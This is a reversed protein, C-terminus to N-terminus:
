DIVNEVVSGFDNFQKVLIEGTGIGISEFINNMKRQLFLRDANTVNNYYVYSEKIQDNSFVVGTKPVSRLALPQNFFSIMQNRISEEEYQFNESSGSSIPISKFPPNEMDSGEIIMLESGDEGVFDNMIDHVSQGEYGIINNNEGYIPTREPQEPVLVVQKLSFNNEIRKLKKVALLHDAIALEILPDIKSLPYSKNNHSILYLQGVYDSSIDNSENYDQLHVFDEQRYFRKTNKSYDWNNYVIWDKSSKKRRAYQYPIHRIVSVENLANKGIFLCAANHKSYDKCVKLFIDNINESDNAQIEGLDKFGEGYLFQCYLDTCATLNLSQNVIKSINNPYQNDADYREVDNVFYEVSEKIREKVKHKHYRVGM